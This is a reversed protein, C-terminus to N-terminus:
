EPKQEVTEVKEPEKVEPEKRFRLGSIKEVLSPVSEIVKDISTGRTLPLVDVEGTEKVVIVAKASLRAGAGGGGGNGQSKKEDLGEGGGAGFGFAVDMVPILIVSGVKTPEGVITKNNIAKQLYETVSEVSEKVFMM